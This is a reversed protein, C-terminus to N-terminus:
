IFARASLMGIAVSSNACVLEVSYSIIFYANDQHALACQNGHYNMILMWLLNNLFACSTNCYAIIRLESVDQM